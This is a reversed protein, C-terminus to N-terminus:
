RHSLLWRGKFAVMADEKTEVHGYHIACSGHEYPHSLGWFWWESLGTMHGPVSRFIRGVVKDTEGDHVYWFQEEPRTDPQRKLIFNSM